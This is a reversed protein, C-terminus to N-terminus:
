SAAARMAPTPIVRWPAGCLITFKSRSLDSGEQQVSYIAKPTATVIQVLLADVSRAQFPAGLSFFEYILVGLAYVDRAVNNVANPSLAEPCLYTPTGSVTGEPNPLEDNQSSAALGWDMVIVEGHGGFMVNAPKLDRHAVGLEHAYAMAACIQQIIQARRAWTFHRHDDANGGKLSTIVEALTRGKLYQMTFYLDGSERAGLDYLSVINPHELGAIVRAEAIFDTVHDRCEGLEPLLSKMAVRREVHADRVLTVQGMGGKAIDRVISYRSEADRHCAFDAPLGAIRDDLSLGGHDATDVAHEANYSTGLSHGQDSIDSAASKPVTDGTSGRDRASQM